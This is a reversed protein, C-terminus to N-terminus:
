SFIKKKANIEQYFHIINEINTKSKNTFLVFLKLLNFLAKIFIYNNLQCNPTLNQEIKTFRLKEKIIQYTINRVQKSSNLLLVHNLNLVHM